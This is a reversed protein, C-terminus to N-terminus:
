GHQGMKNFTFFERAGSERELLVLPCSIQRIHVAWKYGRSSNPVRLMTPVVFAGKRCDDNFDTFLGPGEVVHAFDHLVGAAIRATDNDWGQGACRVLLLQEIKLVCANLTGDARQFPVFVFHECQTRGQVRSGQVTRVRASGNGISATHAFKVDALTTRHGRDFQALVHESTLAGAIVLHGAIRHKGQAEIGRMADLTEAFVSVQLVHKSQWQRLGPIPLCM